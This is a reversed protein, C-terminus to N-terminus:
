FKRWQDAFSGHKKVWENWYDIAEENERMWQEREATRIAEELASELLGSLNLGLEKARKVLDARISVNTPTKRATSTRAM